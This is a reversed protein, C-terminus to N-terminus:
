GRHVLATFEDYDRIYDNADYVDSTLVMLVADGSYRYQSGWVMPPLHLAADPRDLMIEARDTGDDIAVSCEGKVCILLQHLERHAHEGRVERSPVDFVLFYRKPHFPLQVGVEGFSLSGRLDTIRPHRSLTARGISKPLEDDNFGSARMRPLGTFERSSQYGVIRAPSGVATAYPPVNRTVVAGAGIAAHHGLHTGPLVSANAGVSVHDGIITPAAYTNCSADSPGLITVNPGVVVDDGVTVGSSLSAGAGIRTRAGIWVGDGVVVNAALSVGASLSVKGAIDCHPGVTVGIGLGVSSNVTASPHVGSSRGPENPTLM